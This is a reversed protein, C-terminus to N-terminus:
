GPAQQTVEQAAAAALAASLIVQSPGGGGPSSPGATLLGPVATRVPPRDTWRRFGQWAVGAGPTPLPRGHDHRSTVSGGPVPRRYTVVPVGVESLEVTETVAGVPDTSRTHSVTPAGAPEGRSPHLHLEGSRHPLQLHARAAHDADAGVVAQM